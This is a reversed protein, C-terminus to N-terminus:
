LEVLGEPQLGDFAISERTVPTGYPIRAETLEMKTMAVEM